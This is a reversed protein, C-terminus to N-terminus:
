KGREGQWLLVQLRPSYNYGSKLIEEVLEPLQQAAPTIGQVTLYVFLPDLKYKKVIHNVEAIDSSGEVVFKFIVDPYTKWYDLRAFDYAFGANALKPSIIWNLRRCRDIDMAERSIFTGDPLRMDISKDPQITGNTEVQYDKGPIVLKDLRYLCPEGGTLVIHQHSSNKIKAIIQEAALAQLAEPDAAERAYATDCWRCRLNCFLFRVFYARLGPTKGEGQMSAFYESIYYEEAM